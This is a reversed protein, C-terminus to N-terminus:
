KGGWLKEWWSKEQAPPEPRTRQVSTCRRGSTLCRGARSPRSVRRPRSGGNRCNRAIPRRRSASDGLRVVRPPPRLPGPLEATAPRRSCSTRPSTRATTACTCARSSSTQPAPRPPPGGRRRRAQTPSGSSASSRLETARSRDAACPDCWGMDWAYEPFVARMDGRACRSPSCAGTSTASSTRSSSAARGHRDAAERHPLEHDRGPGQADARLRVAGAARQREGHRPPDAAHVEAVRLRGPDPAPLLLRAEGARQPEGERRLVAHEAQHLQRARRRATASHPLRERAALDRPRREAAGVPDPHRVRRRHVAGRDDRRPEPAGAAGCRRRGGAGDAGAMRWRCRRRRPPVPGPRLVRGAAAGLLRRPSRRLAKDGVHIQERESSRRCRSRRDRVGEPRGQLREGDDARHPRRRAGARGAVGQQLAERRGERRLLRLVGRLRRRAVLALSSCSCCRSQWSRKM